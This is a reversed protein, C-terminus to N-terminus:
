PLSLAHTFIAHKYCNSRKQKLLLLLLLLLSLSLLLLLLLLLLLISLLITAKTADSYLEPPGSIYNKLRWNQEIFDNQKVHGKM